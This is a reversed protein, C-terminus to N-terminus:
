RESVRGWYLWQSDVTYFLSDEELTTETQNNELTASFHVRGTGSEAQHSHITLGTFRYAECFARIEAEWQELNSQSHPGHPHTTEVIHRINGTAYATFRSRM